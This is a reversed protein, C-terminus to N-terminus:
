ATITVRQEGLDVVRDASAITATVVDGPKLYQPRKAQMRGFAAWVKKEPLVLQTLKRVFPPPVRLACGSPTGTLLIDGPAIDSFTSLESITEAPKYVLNATEDQQRIEGNVALSLTLHDLYRFEERELVALHPGVPCFGRYSKGKFFQMQPLQVDRASIDNAIALGFVHDALNDATVTVPGSIAKGFVLALEIEYDLLRVHAPRVVKGHPANLTCDAKEFFMNFAKEDPNLGSEIMHRRYNAGQCLLRAPATVPSLLEVAQFPLSAPRTKAARWDDEGRAILDATTEYTGALPAIGGNLAVGWASRGQHVFRVINTAM